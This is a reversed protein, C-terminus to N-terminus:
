PQAVRLLMLGAGALVASGFFLGKMNARLQAPGTLRRLPTTWLSLIPLGALVALMLPVEWGVLSAWGPFVWDTHPMLLGADGALGQTWAGATVTAAMVCLLSAAPKFTRRWCLLSLLLSAGAATLIGLLLARAVGAPQLELLARWLAANCALGVWASVALVAWGPHPALRAEGPLLFTSYGTSRFLKLSM